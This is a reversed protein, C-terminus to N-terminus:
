PQQTWSTPVVSPPWVTANVYACQAYIANRQEALAGVFQRIPKLRGAAIWDHDALYPTM